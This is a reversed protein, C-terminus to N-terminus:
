KRAPLHEPLRARKKKKPKKPDIEDDLEDDDEESPVVTLEEIENFIGLQDSSVVESQPAYNKRQLLNVMDKLHQIQNSKDTLLGDKESLQGQQDIVKYHLEIVRKKLVQIDDPLENGSM